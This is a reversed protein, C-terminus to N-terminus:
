QKEEVDILDGSRAVKLFLNELNSENFRQLVEKPSGDALIQGRRLFLIRECFQEVEMMNHSTFLITFRRKQHMKRLWERMQAAMFPDLNATPEDLLLVEPHNLVAKALKLRMAEGSSLQGIVRDALPALHAEALLTDISQSVNSIHYLGGYINLVERVTLNSPLEVNVAAYNIRQYIQYRKKEVLMGLLKLTGQTPAVLGLLCHILTTKGAGNHGLLGVIQGPAVTFSVDNLSKTEGYVKTLNQIEIANQIM